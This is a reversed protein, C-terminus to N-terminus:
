YISIGQDAVPPVAVEGVIDNSSYSMDLHAGDKTYVVYREVFIVWCIWFAVLITVLILSIFGIRNLFRRTRYPINM